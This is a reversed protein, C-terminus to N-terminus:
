LYFGGDVVLTQGTVFTGSRVFGEISDAVDKAEAVRGLLTDSTQLRIHEDQGKVWDTLVVGPAVANVRVDPALVRALCKTLTILAGKSVAYPISSGRGMLGAISAVNVVTGKRERLTSACARAMHFAGVVNTEIMGTWDEATVADLDEMPIFRTTGANNVLIDIGGKWKIAEAVSSRVADDDRVDCQLAIAPVEQRSLEDLMRSAKDASHAYVIVVSAGAQAFRFICERGIGTAGGTVLAVKGRAWLENNM